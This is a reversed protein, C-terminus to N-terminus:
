AGIRAKPAAAARTYFADYGDIMTELSFESQVRALGAQGMETRLAADASLRELAEALRTVHAPPVLIGTKGDDVMEDAGGVHTAVVPRASAMAELITNSMGESRSPQVFIDIARFVAEVDPRHGLLHVCASLGREAIRSELEPRLPGDGAIVAHVRRGRNRLIQVADILSAHDKVDVLRGIAGLVLAGDLDLGLRDRTISQDASMFRTLNVGNRIVTIASQAIGVERAMREALRSSVSLLHDAQRWAWRQAAVQRPQLQLTGHEGHVIVPVRALRGAALGEILTGWSHTHLVDPRYRRLTKYIAWVIAPDNGRRRKLEVVPVSPAVMACMKPDAPTTSCISSVVRTDNLGNVIKVVGHEMGGSRLTYVLHMVHIPRRTPAQESVPTVDGAHSASRLSPQGIM